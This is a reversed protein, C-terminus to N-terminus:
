QCRRERWRALFLPGSIALSATLALKGWNGLMPVKPIEPDPDPQNGFTTPWSQGALAVLAFATVVSGLRKNGPQSHQFNFSGDEAQLGVLHDIANPGGSQYVITSPDIGLRNFAALAWADSCADSELDHGLAFGGDARQYSCLATIGQRVVPVTQDLGMNSLALLVAATDNSNPELPDAGWGLEISQSGILRDRCDRLLPFSVPMGLSRLAIIGWAYANTTLGISNLQSMLEEVLNRGLFNRPDLGLASAAMIVKAWNSPEILATQALDVEDFKLDIGHAQLAGPTWATFTQRQDLYEIAAWLRPLLTDATAQVTLGLSGVTLLATRRTVKEM